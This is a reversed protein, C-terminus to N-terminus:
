LSMCYDYCRSFNKDLTLDSVYQFAHKYRNLYEEESQTHQSGANTALDGSPIKDKFQQMRKITTENWPAFKYKLTFIDFKNQFNNGSYHRGAHYNGNVEKHIFRGYIKFYDPQLAKM